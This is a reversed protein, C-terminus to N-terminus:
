DLRSSQEMVDDYYSGFCVNEDIDSDASNIPHVERRLLITVQGKKGSVRCRVKKTGRQAVINPTRPDLPVGGNYIHSPKNYLSHEEMVDKLLCGTWINHKASRSSTKCLVAPASVSLAPIRRGFTKKRRPM